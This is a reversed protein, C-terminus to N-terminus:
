FRRDGRRESIPDGASYIRTARMSQAWQMHRYLAVIAKEGASSQEPGDRAFAFIARVYPRGDVNDKMVMGLLVALDNRIFLNSASWGRVKALFTGEPSRRGNRGYGGSCGLPGNPPFM